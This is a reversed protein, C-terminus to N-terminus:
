LKAVVITASKHAQIGTAIPYPAVQLVKIGYTKGALTITHSKTGEPRVTKNGGVGLKLNVKDGSPSTITLNVEAIGAQICLVDQPCRSDAINDLKLVLRGLQLSATDKLAVQNFPHLTFAQNFFVAPLHTQPNAFSLIWTQLLLILYLAM